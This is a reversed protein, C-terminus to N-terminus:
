VSDTEEPEDQVTSSYEGSALSLVVDYFWALTGPEHQLADSTEIQGGSTWAQIPPSKTAADFIWELRKRAEPDHIESFDIDGGFFTLAGVPRGHHSIEVRM